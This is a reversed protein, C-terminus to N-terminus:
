SRTPPSSGRCSCRSRRTSRPTHEAELGERTSRRTNQEAGLTSRVALHTSKKRTGRVDGKSNHVGLQRVSAPTHEAKSAM